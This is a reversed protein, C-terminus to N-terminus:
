RTSDLFRPDDDGVRGKYASNINRVRTIQRQQERIIGLSNRLIAECEQQNRLIGQAAEAMEDASALITDAAAAAEVSQRDTMRLAKEVMKEVDKTQVLVQELRRLVAERRDLIEALSSTAGLEIKSKLEDGVEALEALVERRCALQGSYEVLRVALDEADAHIM